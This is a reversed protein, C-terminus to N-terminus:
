IAGRIRKLSTKLQELSTEIRQPNEKLYETFEKIEVATEAILKVYIYRKLRPLFKMIRKYMKKGIDKGELIAYIGALTTLIIGIITYVDM